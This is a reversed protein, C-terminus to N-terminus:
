LVSAIRCEIQRLGEIIKNLTDKSPTWIGYRFLDLKSKRMGIMRAFATIDLVGISDIMKAVANDYNPETNDSFSSIHIDEDIEEWRLSQGDAWIEFMGRQESTADMLRPFAELPRSKETGESTLIYIRNDTFWVKEIKEM